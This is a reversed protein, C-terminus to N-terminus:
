FGRLCKFDSGGWGRAMTFWTVREVAKCVQIVQHMTVDTICKQLFVSM